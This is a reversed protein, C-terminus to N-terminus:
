DGNIASLKVSVQEATWSMKSKPTDSTAYVNIGGHEITDPLWGEKLFAIDHEEVNLRRSKHIIPGFVNDHAHKETWSLTRAEKNGKVGGTLVQEVELHEVGADDKTHKIISTVAALGIAKRKLYGIGQHQM